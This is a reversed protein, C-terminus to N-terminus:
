GWFFFSTYTVPARIRLLVISAGVFVVRAIIFVCEKSSATPCPYGLHYCLTSPSLLSLLSLPPLPPLLHHSVSIPIAQTQHLATLSLGVM